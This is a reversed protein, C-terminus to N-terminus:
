MASVLFLVFAFYSDWKIYVALLSMVSTCRLKCDRHLKWENRLNLIACLGQKGFDHSKLWALIAFEISCQGFLLHSLTSGCDICWNLNLAWILAREPCLHTHHYDMTGRLWAWPMDSVFTAFCIFDNCLFHFKHMTVLLGMWGHRGSHLKEPGALQVCM